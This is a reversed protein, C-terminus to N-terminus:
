KIIGLGVLSWVTSINIFGYDKGGIYFNCICDFFVNIM